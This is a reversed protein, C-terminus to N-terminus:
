VPKAQANLCRVMHRSLNDRRTFKKTPTACGDYPCTFAKSSSPITEKHVTRKHRQLDANLAFASECHDCNYRRRHKRNTHNNKLGRTRFAAGCEECVYSERLDRVPQEKIPPM